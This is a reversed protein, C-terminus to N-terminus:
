PTGARRTRSPFSSRAWTPRTRTPASPSSTSLPSTPLTLHRCTFNAGYTTSVSASSITPRAGAFLYPPSYIQSSLQGGTDSPEGHGGGAVLVRGDPMLVSTSHYNRAASMSAVATWQETAPNWIEAQLQGSTVVSEDSTPEGGVAFVTGDALMTLMHYVRANKMPATARWAPSAVTTDIVATNAQATTTNIVSPAGGSYLIKGPRYMVSSGNTVGSPM